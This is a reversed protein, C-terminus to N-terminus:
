FLIDSKELVRLVEAEKGTFPGPSEMKLSAMAAAFGGAQQVDAGKARRYLYGAMYTDGCGTADIVKTPRYAPITYFTEDCYIFSGKSGNTVVVEKVGWAALLVAGEHPDGIGTLAKLEAEDAKVIDVYGLAEKKQHWDAPYVKHNAVRRLFGQVDLSVKGKAALTKILDVPIDGALLPGLHFIDAKIDQVDALMFPDATQWVNQTRQDPDDGYINEFYVTHASPKALVEIGNQMLEDAYAQEAEAIKTVLLYRTDLKALAVSFYYATGGPMHM